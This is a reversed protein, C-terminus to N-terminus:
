RGEEGNTQAGARGPELAAHRPLGDAIVDWPAADGVFIHGDRDIGPLAEFLGARVRLGPVGERRSYLPAGCRGCFARLKDPSSRYERLWRTDDVVTVTAAPVVAIFGSSSTKRCQGCHCFVLGGSPHAMVLEVAGCLCRGTIGQGTEM